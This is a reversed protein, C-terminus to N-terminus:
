KKLFDDRKEAYHHAESFIGFKSQRIKLICKDLKM